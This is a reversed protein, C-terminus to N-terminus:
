ENNSAVGPLSKILSSVGEGATSIVTAENSNLRNLNAIEKKQAYVEVEDIQNSKKILSVNVKISDSDSTINRVIYNYSVHTFSISYDTNKKVTIKFSGDDNSVSGFRGIQVAVGDIGINEQNTIIGYIFAEQGFSLFSILSFILSITLNKL